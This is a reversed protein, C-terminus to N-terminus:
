LRKGTEKNDQKNWVKKPILVATIIATENNIKVDVVKSLSSRNILYEQQDKSYSLDDTILPIGDQSNPIIIYKIEINMFKDMITKGFYSTEESLSTSTYGAEYLYKGKIFELDNISMINYKKFGNIDTGRYTIFTKKAPPSKSFIKDITSIDEILNDIVNKDRKGHEHYNWNNRLIANIRKFNYGTYNRISMLENQSFNNNSTVIEETFNPNIYEYNKFENLIMEIELKAEESLHKELYKTEFSTGKEM